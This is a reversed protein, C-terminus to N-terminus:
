QGQDDPRVSPPVFVYRRVSADGRLRTRGWGHRRLIGGVRRMAGVDWRERPVQLVDSLIDEVAVTTRRPALWGAITDDWPDVEYREEQEVRLVPALSAEPWWAAGALFAERAEAWLQDRDRELGVRDLSSVTVPWFRRAGTPDALYAGENTTGIFVCSRNHRVKLRRYAPRYVDATQSIFDKVRTASAGRLADLEGIEVIWSGHIADSARTADRLDPLSGLYWDGALIRVASSKGAGQPGELIVMHDVQAGPRYARAVASIMWLRGVAATYEDARAGLYTALWGTLRERGDWRLGELYARLPHQANARAATEVADLVATRPFTVGARKALWHGVYSADHEQFEGAAPTSMGAVPEPARTWMVRDAFADYALVGRWPEANTLILVANGPDKTIRGQSDHRLSHQWDDPGDPAGIVPPADQAAVHERPVAGPAYRCASDAIGRVEAEDLPPVCREVNTALLAPLIADRSLSRARLSCALRFLTDNRSGHIVADPVPTSTAKPGAAKSQCLALVWSPLDALEADDPHSSAEWEYRRGSVHVSPPAVIYGGDGRVDIGNGLRSASNGVAVASKFLIHRGGGGTISEVTAPLRGYTDELAALSADGDHQPDIDIVVLGHGTRVGINANPFRAWWGAIVDDRVSANKVGQPVLDGIPHKGPSGCAAGKPCACRGNSAWWIPFVGMGKRAYALAADLLSSDTAVAMM